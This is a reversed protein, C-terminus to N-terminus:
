RPARWQTLNGAQAWLSAASPGGFMQDDLWNGDYGGTIRNHFSQIDHGIGLGDGVSARGFLADGWDNVYEDRQELWGIRNRQAGNGTLSEVPVSCGLILLDGSFSLAARGIKLAVDNPFHVVPKIEVLLPTKGTLLFDPIWGDLDYPEYEFQWGCLKFFEAWRAELRSRYRRGDVITPIGRV